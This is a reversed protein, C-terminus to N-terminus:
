INIANVVNFNKESRKEKKQREFTFRFFYTTKKKM